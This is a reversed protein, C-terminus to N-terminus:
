TCGYPQAGFTRTDVVVNLLAGASSAVTEEGDVTLTFPASTCRLKAVLDEVVQRLMDREAEVRHGGAGYTASVPIRIFCHREYHACFRVMHGFAVNLCGGGTPNLVGGVLTIEDAEPFLPEAGFLRERLFRVPTIEKHELITGTHTLYRGSRIDPRTQIIEIIRDFEEHSILWQIPSKAV